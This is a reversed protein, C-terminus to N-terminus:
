QARRVKLQELERRLKANEREIGDSREEAHIMHLTLEEIKALLKSQMDGLSIGNTQVDAASPVDPLHRNEKVYRAVESLPALRYAPDFVYDAGTSSVIVEKAGITGVVQLLHQPNNTGIGVQGTDTITMWEAASTVNTSDTYFGIRSGPQGASNAINYVKMGNFRNPFSDSFDRALGFYYAQTTDTTFNLNTPGVINLTAFNISGNVELSAAPPSTTGIGVSSLTSCVASVTTCDWQAWMPAPLGVICIAAIRAAPVRACIALYCRHIASCLASMMRTEKDRRRKTTGDRQAFNVVVGSSLQLITPMTGLKSCAIAFGTQVAFEPYLCYITELGIQESFRFHRLLYEYFERKDSRRIPKGTLIGIPEGTIV